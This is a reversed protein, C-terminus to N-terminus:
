KMKVVLGTQEALSQEKPQLPMMQVIWAAQKFEGLNPAQGTWDIKSTATNLQQNIVISDKLVSQVILKASRGNTSQHSNHGSHQSNENHQIDKDDHDKKPQVTLTINATASLKGDSVTYSFTDSGSFERKPTYTYTSRRSPEPSADANKSLKGRKPNAFNLTLV